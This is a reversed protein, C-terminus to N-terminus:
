NQIKYISVGDGEFEKKADISYKKLISTIDNKNDSDVIYEVGLAKLDTPNLYVHIADNTETTIYTDEDVLSVTQHSYRNWSEEYSKNKDLLAWKDFDPLFNTANIVRAGNAMFFNTTYFKTDITIWAANKDKKSTNQVFKSIPHNTIPSIGSRVPNVTAGAFFMLGILLLVSVIKKYNIVFFLIIVFFVIEALILKLSIYGILSENIFLCYVMGFVMPFLIKQWKEFM